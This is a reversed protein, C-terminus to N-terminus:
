AYESTKFHTPGASSEFSQLSSKMCHIELVLKTPWIVVALDVSPHVLDMDPNDFLEISLGFATKRCGTVDDYFSFKHSKQQPWQETEPLVVSAEDEEVINELKIYKRKVGRFLQMRRPRPPYSGANEPDWFDVGEPHDSEADLDPVVQDQELMEVDKADSLEEHMSPEPSSPRSYFAPFEIQFPALVVARYADTTPSSRQFKVNEDVPNSRGQLPYPSYRDYKVREKVESSRGRGPASPEPSPSRSAM